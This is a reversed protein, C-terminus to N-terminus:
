EEPEITFTLPYGRERAAYQAKFVKGKADELPLTTVYCNGALHTKYAIMTAKAFTMEFIRVLVNIVFEFTTIDDNHIIVRYPREMEEESMVIFQLDIGRRTDIDTDTDVDYDTDVTALQNFLEEIM